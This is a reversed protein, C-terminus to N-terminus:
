PHNEPRTALEAHYGLTALRALNTSVLADDPRIRAAELFWRLAALYDKGLLAAIAQDWVSAYEDDPAAVSAASPPADMPPDASERFAADLDLEADVDLEVGRAEDIQRAADVLVADWKGTITRPGPDGAFTRCQVTTAAAFALRRFADLGRGSTDTATWLEGNMMVIRGLPGESDILIEVSHRGLGALQVYEAVCFPAQDDGSELEGLWHRARARLHELPIPKELVDVRAHPPIQARYARVYASVFMIPAQMGRKGLEGILEIGSRDPLDIDSIVLDPAAADLAACAAAITAAQHVQAPLKALGRAMSERLMQEDEVVLIRRM